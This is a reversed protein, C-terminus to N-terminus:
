DMGELEFWRTEAADLWAALEPHEDRIREATEAYTEHEHVSIESLELYLEADDSLEGQTAHRAVDSFQKSM